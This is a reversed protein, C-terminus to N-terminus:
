PRWAHFPPLAERPLSLRVRRRRDPRRDLGGPEGVRLDPQLALQPPLTM